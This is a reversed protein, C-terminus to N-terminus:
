YDFVNFFARQFISSVQKHRLILKLALPHNMKMEFTMKKLEFFSILKLFQIFEQFIEFM